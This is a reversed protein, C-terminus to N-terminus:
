LLSDSSWFSMLSHGCSNTRVLGGCVELPFRSLNYSNLRTAAPASRHVIPLLHSVYILSNKGQELFVKDMFVQCDGGNDSGALERSKANDSLGVGVKGVGPPVLPGITYLVRNGTNKLWQGMAKIAEPEYLSTSSSMIGDCHTIFSGPFYRLISSHSLFRPSARHHVRM